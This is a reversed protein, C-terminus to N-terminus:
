NHTSNGPPKAGQTKAHLLIEEHVMAGATIV